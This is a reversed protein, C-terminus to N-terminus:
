ICKTGQHFVLKWKDDKYRWISSRLSYQNEPVNFIRYTALVVDESLEQINFDSLEMQVEGIGNESIPEERHLIRGSSGIEFFEEALIERLAQRSLRVKPTLLQEELNQLQTKLKEDM